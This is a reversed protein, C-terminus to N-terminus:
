EEELYRIADEIWIIENEWINYREPYKELGSKKLIRRVRNLNDIVHRKAIKM